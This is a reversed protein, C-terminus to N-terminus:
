TVVVVVLVERDEAEKEEACTNAVVMVVLSGLSYLVIM